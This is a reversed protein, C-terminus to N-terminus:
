GVVVVDVVVVVVVVPVRVESVLRVFEFAFKDDCVM